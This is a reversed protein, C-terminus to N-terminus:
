PRKMQNKLKKRVYFVINDVRKESINLKKSIQKHSYGNIKMKMVEYHVNGIKKIKELVKNLEFGIENNEEKYYDNLYSIEEAEDDLSTINMKTEFTNKRLIDVIDNRLHLLAFSYFNGLNIEFRELSDLISKYILMKNDEYDYGNRKLLGNFSYLYNGLKKEYRFFLLKLAEKNGLRINYVLEEDTPTVFSFGKQIM